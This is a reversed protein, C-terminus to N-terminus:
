DVLPSSSRPKDRWWAQGVKRDGAGLNMRLAEPSAGTWDTRNTMPWFFRLWPIRTDNEDDTRDYDLAGLEKGEELYFFSCPFGRHWWWRRRGIVVVTGGHERVVTEFRHQHLEVWSCFFFNKPTKKTWLEEIVMKHM